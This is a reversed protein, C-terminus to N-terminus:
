VIELSRNLNIYKTSKQTLNKWYLGDRNVVRKAKFFYFGNGIGVFKDKTTYINSVSYYDTYVDEFKFFDKKARFIGAEVNLSFVLSLVLIFSYNLLKKM